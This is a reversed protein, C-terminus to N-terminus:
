EMLAALTTWSQPSAGGGRGDESDWYESWGSGTAGRVTGRAIAESAQGSGKPGGVAELGTSGAARVALWMLYDLQPWSPGRWYTGSARTPEAAHVQAPGFPGGFAAPDTLQAVVAGLRSEDRDGLAPLLAELTRVRGSGESTPGDDVWTAVEANWRDALLGDLETAAAVLATNGVAAGLEHASWATIASFAVSGVAFDPNHLPSGADSREIGTLLAGKRDFWAERPPLSGLAVTPDDPFMLDDWRASHDCGSEWPHVIEVLGNRSRQRRHLLFELGATAADVSSHPVEIGLRVLEAITHGFVPPQTISSTPVTSRPGTEGWWFQEHSRDGDYYVLHPVFGDVHQAQLTFRLESVARDADGLHAWVVSHFCSDWLWLWPYTTPNPCTFGPERWNTELVERARQRVTWPESTGSM